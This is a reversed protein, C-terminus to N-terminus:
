RIWDLAGSVGSHCVSIVSFSPNVVLDQRLELAKYAEAPQSVVRSVEPHSESQDSAYYTDVKLTLPEGGNATPLMQLRWERMQFVEILALM